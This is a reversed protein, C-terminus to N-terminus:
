IGISVRRDRKDRKDRRDKSDRRDKTVKTEETERKGTNILLVNKKLEFIKDILIDIYVM